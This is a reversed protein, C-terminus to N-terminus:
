EDEGYEEVEVDKWTKKGAMVELSNAIRKLSQPVTVLFIISYVTIIVAIIAMIIWLILLIGNAM